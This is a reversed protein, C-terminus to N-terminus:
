PRNIRNANFATAVKLFNLIIRDGYETLISEPHFQVGYLPYERHNLAMITGDESKASIELSDCEDLDAILSHYRGASFPSPVNEFLVGGKHHVLSSKGHFPVDGRRVTADFAQAICQHGLCVGLIPITASYQRIVDLSIGAQAPGCPGPSIIIADPDLAALDEATCADNRFILIEHGSKHVYRGLNHVFSDYNDILVIM